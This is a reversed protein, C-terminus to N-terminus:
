LDSAGSSCAEGGCVGSINSACTGVAPGCSTYQCATQECTKTTCGLDACTACAGVATCGNNTCGNGGCTPTGSVCKSGANSKCATGGCVNGTCGAKFPCVNSNCGDGGCAETSGPPVMGGVRGLSLQVSNDVLTQKLEEKTM